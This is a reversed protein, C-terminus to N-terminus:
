SIQDGFLQVYKNRNGEFETYTGGLKMVQVNFDMTQLDLEHQHPDQM